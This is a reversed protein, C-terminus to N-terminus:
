KNVDKVGWFVRCGRRSIAIRNNKYKRENNNKTKKKKLGHSIMEKKNKVGM